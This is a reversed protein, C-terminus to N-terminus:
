RGNGAFALKGDDEEAIFDGKKKIIKRATSMGSELAHDMNYYRFMGGRGAIHLNEFRCLYDYLEDCLEKYGIEFLPYAKAARVVASDIVEHRMVFGLRELNEVVIKTLTEDDENWIADGSFSFFEMVLVTKGEPAM